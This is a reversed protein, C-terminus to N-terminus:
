MNRKELSKVVSFGLSYLDTPWFGRLHWLNLWLPWSTLPILFFRRQNEFHKFHKESRNSFVKNITKQWRDRHNTVSDYILETMYKCALLLEFMLPFILCVLCCVAGQHVRSHRPKSVTQIIVYIQYFIISSFDIWSHISSRWTKHGAQKTKM